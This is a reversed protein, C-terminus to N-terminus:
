DRLCMEQLYEVSEGLQCFLLVRHFARSDFGWGGKLRFRNIFMLENLSNTNNGYKDVLM